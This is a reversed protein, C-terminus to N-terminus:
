TRKSAFIETHGCFTSLHGPREFCLPGDRRQATIIFRCHDSFHLKRAVVYSKVHLIQLIVANAQQAQIRFPLLVSPRVRCWRSRVKTAWLSALGVLVGPLIARALIINALPPPPAGPALPAMSVVVNRSVASAANVVAGALSLVALVKTALICQEIRKLAGLCATCHKTHQQTPMFATAVANRGFLVRSVCVSPPPLSLWGIM